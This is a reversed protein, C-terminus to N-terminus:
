ERARDELLQRAAIPNETMRLVARADPCRLFARAYDGAEQRHGQREAGVFEDYLCDARVVPHACYSLLSVFLAIWGAQIVRSLRDAPTRGRELFCFTLAFGAILGGVHGSNSVFPILAGAILLAITLVLFQRAGVDNLFDLLHRGLRMQLALIAGIMGFLAGSGGVLLTFPSWLTAGIGGGIAAVVYIVVFKASGFTRELPPGLFWLSVSNVALHVFGGHLFAYTLLRWPEGDQVLPGYAAGYRILLEGHREGDQGTVIALAIYAVLVIFTVPTENVQEAVSTM